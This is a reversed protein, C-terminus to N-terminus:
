RLIVETHIDIAGGGLIEEAFLSCTINNNNIKLLNYSIYTKNKNIHNIKGTSSGCAIIQIGEYNKTFQIHKHGHLLYKVNRQRLWEEFLKADRLRLSKEWLDRPIIKEYWKKNYFDPHPIPILHHHMVAILLYEHHNPIDDIMNGMEVMQSLGIEGEALNGNTNSNFLLLLVKVDELIEIRPFDGIINSMKQNIHLFALGKNNVDHNGLIRIPKKGYNRYLYDNFDNYLNEFLYNPTDVTDGTIIFDINDNPNLTNLQSDILHNLRRKANNINNSGFHLDSLHLIYHSSKQRQYSLKKLERMFDNEYKIIQYLYYLDDESEVPVFTFDNVGRWFLVAPWSDAQKLATDFNPFSDFITIEQPAEQPQLILCSKEEHIKFLNYLVEQSVMYNNYEGYPPLLLSKIKCDNFINSTKKLYYLLNDRISLFDDSIKRYTNLETANECYPLYKAFQHLVQTTNNITEIYRFKRNSYMNENFNNLFDLFCLYNEESSTIDRYCSMVKGFTLNAVTNATELTFRYGM